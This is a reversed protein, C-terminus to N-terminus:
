MSHTLPLLCPAHMVYATLSLVQEAAERLRQEARVKVETAEVKDILLTQEGVMRQLDSTVERM